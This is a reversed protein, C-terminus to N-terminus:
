PHLPVVEALPQSTSLPLFGELAVIVLFLSIFCLGFIEMPGRFRLSLVVQIFWMRFLSSKLLVSSCPAASPFWVSFSLCGNALLSLLFSDPLDKSVIYTTPVSTSISPGWDCLDGAFNSVPVAHPEQCVNVGEWVFVVM